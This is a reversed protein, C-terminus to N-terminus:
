CANFTKILVCTVLKTTEFLNRITAQGVQTKKQFYEDLNLCVVYIKIFSQAHDNSPKHNFKILLMEILVFLEVQINDPHVPELALLFFAYM